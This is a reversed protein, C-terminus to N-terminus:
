AMRLNIMLEIIGNFPWRFPCLEKKLANDSALVGYPPSHDLYRERGRTKNCYCARLLCPVSSIVRCRLCKGLFPLRNSDEKSLKKSVQQVDVVLVQKIGDLDWRM